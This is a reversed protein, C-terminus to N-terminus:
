AVEAVKVIGPPLFNALDELSVIIASHDRIKAVHLPRASFEGPLGIRDLVLGDFPGIRDPGQKVSARSGFDRMITFEAPPEIQFSQGSVHRKRARAGPLGFLWGRGSRIASLQGRLVLDLLLNKATVWSVGLAEGIEKPQVYRSRANTQLYDLLRQRVLPDDVKNKPNM